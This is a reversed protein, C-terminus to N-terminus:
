AGAPATTVASRSASCSRCGTTSRMSIPSRRSNRDATNISAAKFTPAPKRRSIRRGCTSSGQYSDVASFLGSGAYNTIFQGSIGTSVPHGDLTIRTETPLGHIVFQHNVNTSSNTITIGPITQVIQSLDPTNRERITQTGVSPASNSSLNFTAANRAAASSSSTRGIVSLNSLSAVTLTITAKLNEGGTVVVDQQGTQYGGKSVTITYIGAPLTLAFAGSGDSATKLSRGGGAASVTAAAVRRGNSDVITGSVTGTESTAQAVTTSTTTAAFGPAAVSIVLLMAAFAAFAAFAARVFKRL